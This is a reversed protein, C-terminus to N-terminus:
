RPITPQPERSQATPARARSENKANSPEKAPSLVTVCLGTEADQGGGGVLGWGVRLSRGLARGLSLCPRGRDGQAAGAEAV